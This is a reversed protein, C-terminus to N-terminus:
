QVMSSRQRIWTKRNVWPFFLARRQKTHVDDCFGVRNFQFLMKDMLFLSSGLFAYYKWSIVKSDDGSIKLYMDTLHKNKPKFDGAKSSLDLLFNLVTKKTELVSCSLTKFPTNAPISNILKELKKEDQERIEDSIRNPFTEIVIGYENGSYEIVGESHIKKIPIFKELDEVSSAFSNVVHKGRTGAIFFVVRDKNYQVKEDTSFFKCWINVVIFAIGLYMLKDINPSVAIMKFLYLGIGIVGFLIWTHLNTFDLFRDNKVKTVTIPPKPQSYPSLDSM